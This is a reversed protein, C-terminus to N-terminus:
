PGVKGSEVLRAVLREFSSEAQERELDIARPTGKPIGLRVTALGYPHQLPSATLSLNQVHAVPVTTTRRVFAGSRVVVQTPQFAHGLAQWAALALLSAPVVVSAALAGFPGFAAAGAAAAVASLLGAYVLRKYLAARPARNLRAGMEDAGLIENGLQVARGRRAIPLLMSTEKQEEKKGAYGAVVATLSALGFARRILNEHMQVAQLRALPVLARRREFLGRTIVLRDDEVRVTFDWYVLVTAIVSVILSVALFAGILVLVVLAGLGGVEEILGTLQDDPLVQELYGLLLAIVAVRGGTVGALLLDRATLQILPPQEETAVRQAGRLCAVRVREAEDPDLAVLSAESEGGGITEIRLEVVDLMRHRLKEVVNVSQIRAIPIERRYRSIVGGQVVLLDGTIRYTFRLWRVVPGVLVVLAGAVLYIRGQTGLALLPIAALAVRGASDVAWVVIAAASLRRDGGREGASESM